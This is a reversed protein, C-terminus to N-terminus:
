PQSLRIHAFAVGPCGFPGFRLDDLSEEDFVPDLTFNGLMKAVWHGEGNGLIKAEIIPHNGLIQFLFNNNELSLENNNSTKSLKINEIRLMYASIVFM